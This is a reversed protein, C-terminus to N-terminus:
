ESEESGSRCRPAPHAIGAAQAESSLTFELRANDTRVGVPGTLDAAEASLTGQWVRAGDVYASLEQTRILALLRHTQGPQLHPIAASFAPKLNHYGHNACEASSQQGPNTKV